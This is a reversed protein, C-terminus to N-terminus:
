KLRVIRRMQAKFSPKGYPALGMMKYEDGFHAFGLYQTIASYFIGLSHPFYIRGDINVRGKRTIGWATSAFDGFGDVSVCVTEPFPSLCSASAMHALHHEIAHFRARCRGRSFERRLTRELSVAARVNQIRNKILGVEPRHRLLFLLRRWNNANPRRNIAIHELEDFHVGGEAMCYKIAEVPLGAWHKIRRFREEEAAAVLEGSRLLCAASDAHYANLGLILM